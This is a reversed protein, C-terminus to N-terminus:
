TVANGSTDEPEPDRDHETTDGRDVATRQTRPPEGPQGPAGPGREPPERGGRDSGDPAREGADSGGAQASAGKRGNLAKRLEGHLIFAVAIAIAISSTITLFRNLLMASVAANRDVGIVLFAGVGSLETVGIDVPLPFILGFALSFFYVALVEGFSVNNVGIGRLVVYLAAGGAVLYGAALAYSVSLTRWGIISVVGKDFTKIEDAARDVLRNLRARRRIWDPRRLHDRRKYALWGLLAVAAVGVVILPRLWVWGDLGLIVLATLSVAVEFLIILTTAASSYTFDTGEASTLLYNQFYNGVPVFRTAEGGAFSFVQAQLSVKVGEDRLLVRWQFFRVVEYVIMLLVFWILYIRNFSLMLGLIKKPNGFSFLLVVAAVTVVVPILIKPSLLKKM